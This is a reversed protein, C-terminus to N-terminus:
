CCSLHSSLGCLITCMICSTVSFHNVFIYVNVNIIYSRTLGCTAPSYHWHGACSIEFNYFNNLSSWPETSMLAPDCVRDKINKCHYNLRKQKGKLGLHNDWYFTASM